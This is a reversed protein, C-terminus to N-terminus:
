QHRQGTESKPLYKQVSINCAEGKCARLVDFSQITINFICFDLINKVQYMQRLNWVFQLTEFRVTFNLNGGRFFKREILKVDTTSKDSM